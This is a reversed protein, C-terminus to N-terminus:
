TKKTYVVAKQYIPNSITHLILAALSAMFFVIMTGLLIWGISKQFYEMVVSICTGHTIYVEYSSKDLFKVTRLLLEHTSLLKVLTLVFSCTCLAIVYNSIQAVVLVYFTEVISISTMSGILIRLMLTIILVCILNVSYKWNCKGFANVLNGSYVLVLYYLFIYNFRYFFATDTGYFMCVANYIVCVVGGLLLLKTRSIKGKLKATIPTIFYCIMIYSTFWFTGLNSDSVLGMKTHFGSVNLFIGVCGILSLKERVILVLYVTWLADFIIIPIQLRLFRKLLWGWRGCIEDSSRKSFIYASLIFFIPVGVQFLQSAATFIPSGVANCIHASVIMYTAIVRLIRISISEDDSISPTIQMQKMM